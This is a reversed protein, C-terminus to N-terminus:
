KYNHNSLWDLAIDRWDEYEFEVLHQAIFDALQAQDMDENLQLAYDIYGNLLNDFDGDIYKSAKVPKTNSRIYRKM